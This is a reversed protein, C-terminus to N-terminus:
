QLWQAMQKMKELAAAPESIQIGGGFTFVWAFFPPSLAVEVTALFHEAGDPATAVRTGFRDIVSNILRNECRLTVTQITDDYMGFIKATYDAASFNRIEIAPLAEPEANVMRDVRFQAIKGHRASWGVTYYYDRQWMMAYPSFAYWAGDHKLVKEKQPTYVAYQFRIQRHERIATHITDVTYYITENVPKVTKDMYVPRHLEKAQEASAFSTLKRILERSKKKTIFRSSEVADVLLKLEPLEFLRSAVSYRNQTSKVCLIDAGYATLQAIDHYVSKRYVSKRSAEIGHEAWFQLIDAASVDHREDTQTYLYKLLLLIRRQNENKAM